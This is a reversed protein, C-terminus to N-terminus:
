KGVDLRLVDGYGLEPITVEVRDGVAKTKLEGHHASTAKTIKKGALISLTVPQGVKAEYNAV